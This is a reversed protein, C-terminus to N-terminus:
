VIKFYLRKVLGCRVCTKNKNNWYGPIVHCKCGGMRVYYVLFIMFNLLLVIRKWCFSIKVSLVLILFVQYSIVQYIFVNQKEVLIEYSCSMTEAKCDQPLALGFFFFFFFVGFMETISM